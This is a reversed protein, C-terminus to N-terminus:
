RAKSPGVHDVPGEALLRHHQLVASDALQPSDGRWDFVTAGTITDLVVCAKPTSPSLNGDTGTM